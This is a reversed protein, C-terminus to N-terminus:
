AGQDDNRGPAAPPLTARGAPSFRSSGSGSPTYSISVTVQRVSNNDLGEIREAQETM